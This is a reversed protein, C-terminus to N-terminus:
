YIMIPCTLLQSTGILGDDDFIMAVGVLTLMGLIYM